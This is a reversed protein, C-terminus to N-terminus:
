AAGGALMIAGEEMRSNGATSNLILFLTPRGFSGREETVLTRQRFTMSYMISVEALSTANMDKEVLGADM